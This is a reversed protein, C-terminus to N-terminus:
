TWEILSPVLGQAAYYSQNRSRGESADRLRRQVRQAVPARVCGRRFRQADTRSVYPEPMRSERDEIERGGAVLGHAALIPAPPHGEVSFDVIVQLQPLLKVDRPAPVGVRFRQDFAQRGPPELARQRPQVSHKGEPREVHDGPLKVQHAVGETHLRQVVRQRIVATQRKRGFYLRQQRERVLRPLKLELGEPPKQGEPENGRRVGQELTDLPQRRPVYQRLLHLPPLM